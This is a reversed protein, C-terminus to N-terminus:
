NVGIIASVAIFLLVALVLTMAALFTGWFRDRDALELAIATDVAVMIVGLIGIGMLSGFNGTQTVGRDANYHLILPGQISHLAGYLWLFSGLVFAMAIGCLVAILKHENFKELM